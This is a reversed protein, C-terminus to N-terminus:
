IGKFRFFVDYSIFKGGLRFLIIRDLSVWNIIGLFTEVVFIKDFVLDVTKMRGEDLKSRSFFIFVLVYTYGDVLTFNVVFVSTM